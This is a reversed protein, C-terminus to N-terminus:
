RNAIVAVNAVMFGVIMNPGEIACEEPWVGWWTADETSSGEPWTKNQVIGETNPLSPNSRVTASSAEASGVFHLKRV